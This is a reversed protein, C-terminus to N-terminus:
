SGGPKKFACAGTSGSTHNRVGVIVENYGDVPVYLFSCQVADHKIFVVSESKIGFHIKETGVPVFLPLPILVVPSGGVWKFGNHYTWIDIGQDATTVDPKGWNNLIFGATCPKNDTRTYQWLEGRTEGVSISAYDMEKTAQALYGCGSMVASLMFLTLPYSLQRLIM